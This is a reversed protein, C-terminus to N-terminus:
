AGGTIRGFSPTGSFTGDQRSDSRASDDRYLLLHLYIYIFSYPEIIFFNRPRVRACGPHRTPTVAPKVRPMTSAPTKAAEKLTARLVTKSIQSARVTTSPPM